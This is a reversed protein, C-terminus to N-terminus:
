WQGSCCDAVRCINAMKYCDKNLKNLTNFSQSQSLHRNVRLAVTVMNTLTITLTFFFMTEINMSEKVPLIPQVGM